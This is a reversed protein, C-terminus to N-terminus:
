TLVKEEIRQVRILLDDIIEKRSISTNLDDRIQSIQELLKDIRSNNEDIRLTNQSIEKKLEARTEDIRKNTDDIRLTNQNIEEKLEVKLDDVKKIVDDIRKNTYNLETRLDRIDNEFNGFRAEIGSMRQNISEIAVRYGELQGNVTAKFDSLEAKLEGVITDKFKEFLKQIDIKM